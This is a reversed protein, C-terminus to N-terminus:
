LTATRTGNFGGNGGTLVVSTTALVPAYGVQEPQQTLDHNGLVSTVAGTLVNVITIRGGSGADGGAGGTAGSGFGNGGNGGNGGNAQILASVTPGVLLNRVIYVWGGGGGGGGAGGGTVGAAASNGGNGGNGGNAQIVSAPTSSSKIIINAYIALAGGGNGGAGSGGGVNTGDGAGAGGGGGGPGGCILLAGFLFNTEYRLFNNNVAPTRAASGNGGTGSTGTGGGGGKGSYGGNSNGITGASGGTGNGTTATTGNGGPSIDGITGGTQAAGATGGTAGSANGGVNGNWQIAGAAAASLNLATRVFIKYGNTVIKGTGSMTLNDYYMDRSLTTTGSSITVTGDSGDGFSRYAITQTGGQTERYALSNWATAGDGVKFRGTDTEIGPENAALVPNTSTWTAATGHRLQIKYAM